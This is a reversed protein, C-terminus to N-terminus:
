QLSPFAVCVLVEIKLAITSLEYCKDIIEYKTILDISKMSEIM